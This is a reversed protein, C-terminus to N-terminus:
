MTFTGVDIDQLAGSNDFVMVFYLGSNAATFTLQLYATQGADAPSTFTAALVACLPNLRTFTYTGASSGSSSNNSPTKSFATASTLKIKTTKGNSGSIATLTKGALTTPVVANAVRLNIGGFNADDNTFYGAYHNTFVLTIPGINNSSGPPANFALSLQATNTDTKLFTYTGGGYDDPNGDNSSSTQGFTTQDFGVALQESGDPVVVALLGNLSNPAWDAVTSVTYSFVITNTLSANGADDLAYSSIANAGAILQASLDATQWNTGDSLNAQTWTGNNLQYYVATVGVNDMARGSAASNSLVQGKTPVLIVDVPRTIDKFNANFVLNSAVVFSIKSSSTNTAGTWNVFAFGKAAKASLKLAKGGIPFVQGNLNPSVSGSGPININVTVPVNVTFTFIVTNTPSLNNSTDKAYVNLVNPGAILSLNATWNSWGNVTTVPTWAGGNLQYYVGAVGADDTATGTATFLNSIAVTKSTPSVIKLVPATTDAIGYTNTISNTIGATISIIQPAPTIFGAVAKYSVVHAGSTLNSALAGSNFFAGGNVQWQAGAKVAASPLITVRLATVPGSGGGSGAPNFSFVSGANHSSGGFFTMGYLQSGFVQLSGFPTSGDTLNSPNAFFFTHLIQFNSGDPNIQFIVGSGLGNSGGNQTMGYLASNFFTLDGVPRWANATSFSHLIQFGSGSTDVSFVSGVNNAGGASTMGYLTTNSITLSGYPAAGDTTVGTFTHVLHFGTGDTNIAFITGSGLSGGMQTMGYLIGGSLILSGQPSNGNSTQVGFNHLIKYNGGNTDMCFITGLNNGTGSGSCTMGFINTGDTVLTCQPRAGDGTLTNVGFSHLLQFGTGDTNIKYVTGLGNTGGQQTTGYLTSGILLPTGTPNVGDNTNGHGGLIFEVATLGNFSHLLQYGSGNLNMKFLVGRNTTTGGNQTVGYFSAGDSALTSNYQPGAGDTPMDAFGHVLTYPSAAIGPIAVMFLKLVAFLRVFRAIVIRM